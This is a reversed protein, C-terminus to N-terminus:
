KMKLSCDRQTDIMYHCRNEYDYYNAYELLEFQNHGKYARVHTTPADIIM